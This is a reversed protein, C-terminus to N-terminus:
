GETASDARGMTVNRGELAAGGERLATGLARHVDRESRDLVRAAEAPSCGGILVLVLAQRPEAAIATWAIAVEDDALRSATARRADGCVAGTRERSAQVVAEMVRLHSRRADPDQPRVASALIADFAVQQATLPDDVLRRAVAYAVALLGLAHSKTTLGPDERPARFRHRRHLM